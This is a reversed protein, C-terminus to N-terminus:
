TVPHCLCPTQLSSHRCPRSSLINLLPLPQETVSCEPVQQLHTIGSWTLSAIKALELYCNYRVLTSVTTAMRLTINLEINLMQRMSDKPKPIHSLATEAFLLHCPLWTHQLQTTQFHNQGKCDYTLIFARFSCPLTAPVIFNVLFISM